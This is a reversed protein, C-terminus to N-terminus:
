EDLARDLTITKKPMKVGESYAHKCANGLWTDLRELRERYQKRNGYYCGEEIHSQLISHLTSIDAARIGNLPINEFTTAM